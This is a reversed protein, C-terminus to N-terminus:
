VDQQSRYKARLLHGPIVYSCLIAAAICLLQDTESAFVSIIAFLFAFISGIILPRFRLLGGSVFTAMGYLIMLFFYTTKMGHVPMFALATFLGIIFGGWSYGLYVDVYTRVRDKRSQRMGYIISVIAGFPMLIWAFHGNPVQLQECAYHILAAALVNWGWFILLFGDDALRNKATNIMGTILALSEAPQIEKEEM